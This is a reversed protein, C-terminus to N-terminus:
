FIPSKLIILINNKYYFYISDCFIFISFSEKFYIQKQVQAVSTDVAERFLDMTLRTENRRSEFTQEAEELVVALKKSSPRNRNYKLNLILKKNKNQLSILNLKKSM